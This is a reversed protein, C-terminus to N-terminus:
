IEDLICHVSLKIAAFSCTRLAAGKARCCYKEFGLNTILKKGVEGM